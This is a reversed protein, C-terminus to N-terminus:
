GRRIAKLRHGSDAWANADLFANYEEITDIDDTYDGRVFQFAQHELSMRDVLLGCFIRYVEWLKARGKQAWEPDGAHDKGEEYFAIARNCAWKIGLGVADSDFSLAFIEWRRGFTAFDLGCSLIRKMTGPAYIVDGLLICVRGVWHLHTSVLTAAIVDRREPEIWHGSMEKIDDRHTVVIARNGTQRRTRRLLVEGGIDVLQKPMAAHWRELEGAALILISDTLSM